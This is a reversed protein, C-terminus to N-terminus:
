RYGIFIVQFIGVDRGCYYFGCKVSHGSRGEEVMLERPTKTWTSRTAPDLALLLPASLKDSLLMGLFNLIFPLSPPPLSLSTLRSFMFSSLMFCHSGLGLNSHQKCNVLWLSFQLSSRGRPITWPLLFSPSTIQRAAEQRENGM